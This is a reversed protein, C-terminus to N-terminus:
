PRREGCGPPTRSAASSRDRSSLLTEDHAGDWHESLWHEIVQWPLLQVPEDDWLQTVHGCAACSVILPVEREVRIVGPVGQISGTM